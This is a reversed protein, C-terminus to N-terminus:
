KVDPFTANPTPRSGPRPEPQPTEPPPPHQLPTARDGRAVQITMQPVKHYLDGVKATSTM